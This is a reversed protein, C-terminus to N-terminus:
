KKSLLAEIREVRDLSDDIFFQLNPVIRLQNKIRKALLFRIETAHKKVEKLFEDKGNKPTPFVSLNVRALSLDSTIRVFSVTIMTGPFYGQLQTIFMEGLEKQLLKNIKEQRFSEM